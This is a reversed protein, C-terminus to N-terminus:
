APMLPCKVSSSDLRAVNVTGAIVAPGSETPDGTLFFLWEAHHLLLLRCLGPGGFQGSVRDVFEDQMSLGGSVSVARATVQSGHQNEAGVSRHPDVEFATREKLGDKM